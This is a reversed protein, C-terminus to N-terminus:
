HPQPRHIILITGLAALFLTPTLASALPDFRLHTYIAGLLVGSLLLAGTFCTQPPLLALGGVAQAAGIGYLFARSYGWREFDGAVQADGSLSKYALWFFFAALPVRLAFSFISWSSMGRADDEHM